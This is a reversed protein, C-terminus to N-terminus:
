DRCIYPTPQAGQLLKDQELFRPMTGTKFLEDHDGAFGTEGASVALEQGNDDRRLAILGEKVEVYLGLRRYDSDPHQLGFLQEYDFQLQEPAPADLDALAAPWNNLRQATAGPGSLLLAQGRALPVAGHGSDVSIEGDRTRAYLAADCNSSAAPRSDQAALPQAACILDFQTGRIGITATQTRYQVASPNQKGILGSVARLGGKLLESVMGSDAAQQANYRYSRLAYRSGASLVVRTNDRFIIAASGNAAVNVTDGVYLPAGAQLTRTKGKGDLASTGPAMSLLRAVVPNDVPDAPIRREGDRVAEEACDARCLRAIFDTGRIGITATGGQLRYADQNGRKGILGTINRMGGKLLRMAIGDQEPTAAQFHYQSINLVTGPRLAVIGGDTFRLRAASNKESAITDGQELQSGSAVILRKGGAKQVSVTGQVDLLTAIPEALVPQSLLAALLLAARQKPTSLQM